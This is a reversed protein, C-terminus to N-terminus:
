LLGQAIQQQVMERNERLRIKREEDAEAVRKLHEKKDWYLISDVVQETWNTDEEPNVKVPVWERSFAPGEASNILVPLLIKDPDDWIEELMIQWEGELQRTLRSHPGVFLLLYKAGQMAQKLIDRWKEGPQLDKFRTWVSFEEQELKSLLAKALPETDPAYSLFVTRENTM